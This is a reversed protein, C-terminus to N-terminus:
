NDEDTSARRLAGHMAKARFVDLTGHIQSEVMEILCYADARQSSSMEQFDSIYKVRLQNLESIYNEFGKIKQHRSVELSLKQAESCIQEYPMEIEQELTPKTM